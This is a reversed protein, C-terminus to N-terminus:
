RGGINHIRLAADMLPHLAPRRANIRHAAAIHEQAKAIHEMADKLNRAVESLATGEDTTAKTDEIM